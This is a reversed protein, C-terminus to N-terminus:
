KKAEVKVIRYLVRAPPDLSIKQLSDLGAAPFTVNSSWTPSLASKLNSYLDISLCNFKMTGGTPTLVISNGWAKQDVQKNDMAKKIFPGWNNKEISNFSGPDSSNHYNMLVYNFDKEPVANAAQVWANDMVFVEGTTTSISNTEIKSIPMGPFLKTPDFVKSLDANIDPFSNVFMYNSATAMDTGGVKELLAWFSMKGADIAKRAVKSWYTTERKIFEDAKDPAVHRYQYTTIDQAKISNFSGTMIAMIFFVIPLKKFYIRKKM